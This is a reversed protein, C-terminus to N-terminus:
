AAAVPVAGVPFAAVDVKAAHRQVQRRIDQPKRRKLLKLVPLRIRHDITKILQNTKQQVAVRIGDLDQPQVIVLVQDLGRKALFQQIM